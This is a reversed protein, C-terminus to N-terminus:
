SNERRFRARSASEVEGVVTSFTASSRPCSVLALPRQLQRNRLHIELAYGHALDNLDRLLEIAQVNRGRLDSTGGGLEVFFEIGPALSLQTLRRIQDHIRAVFLNPAPTRNYFAGNEDGDTNALVAFPGYEARTDRERFGLDVPSGEAFLELLSSEVADLGDRRVIVLSDFRRERSPEQFAIATIGTGDEASRM